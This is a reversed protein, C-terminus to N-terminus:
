GGKRSPDEKQVCRAKKPCAEVCKGCRVCRRHDTRLTREERSLTIAGMPCAKACLGCFVCLTEDYAVTGLREVIRQVLGLDRIDKKM